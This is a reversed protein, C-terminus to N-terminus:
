NTITDAETFLQGDKIHIVRDAYAAINIDHTIMFITKGQHHIEKLLEMIELSTKSDLAGTPEDAFIISPQTVIARGIAVRQKQGGSLNNPFQDTKDGLGLQELIKLARDRREKKKVKLYYLALEINKIVTKNPILHFSQFVFGMKKNRLEARETESLRRCEQEELLLEGEEFNDLLGMINLLTSKGSGSAGMVAVFEGENITLSIDKLVNTSQKDSTYSKFVKKLQIM